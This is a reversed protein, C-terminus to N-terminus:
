ASDSEGHRAEQRMRVVRFGAKALLAPIAAVPSRDYDKIEESLDEWPVLYPSKKKDVNKEPAYTWDEAERERWWREHEKRALLEIEGDRYEFTDAAPATLPVIACGITRLKNGIDDAQARNSEKLHDPLDEWSVMSSNTEPTNGDAEQQRVYGEHAARAILERRGALFVEPRCTVELLGFTHMNEYEDAADGFLSALGGRQKTRVVITVGRERLLRRLRLGAALGKTDDGLCVYAGTVDCRGGADFLFEGREFESDDVDVRRPILECADGLQPYRAQLAGVVDVADQDVVTVRVRSGDRDGIARWRGAVHLILRAGMEGLGVILLHPAGWPTEGTEDFPPHENLLAPAGRESPNFFELRFSDTARTAMEADLLEALDVDLVRVFCTLPPPRRGVTLARADIGVQANIGDDGTVAFLYRARDVRASDLFRRDSVDGILVVAGERRSDSISPNDANREIVVVKQGRQRFEHTLPRGASGLGCVIVHKRARLRVWWRAIQQRFIAAVASVAAFGAVIPSLLRAVELSVPMPSELTGAELGFLQLSLYLKQWFSRHVGRADLYADFGFGGLALTFVALIALFPWRIGRWFPRVREWWILRAHLRRSPVPHPETSV